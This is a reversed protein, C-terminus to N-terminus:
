QLEYDNLFIYRLGKAVVDHALEQSKGIVRKATLLFFTKSEQLESM